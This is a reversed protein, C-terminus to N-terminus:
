SILATVLMFHEISCYSPSGAKHTRILAYRSPMYSGIRMNKPWTM